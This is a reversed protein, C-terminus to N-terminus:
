SRRLISEIRLIGVRQLFKVEDDKVGAQSVPVAKVWFSTRGKRDRVQYRTRQPVCGCLFPVGCVAATDYFNVGLDFARQLVAPDSCNMVGMSVATVKLGTKGLTRYELAPAMNPKASSSKVKLFVPAAAGLLVSSLHKMFKRRGMIRSFM